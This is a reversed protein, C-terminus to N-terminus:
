RISVSPFYARWDICLVHVFDLADLVPQFFQLTDYRAISFVQLFVGNSIQQVSLNSMVLINIIQTISYKCSTGRFIAPVTLTATSRDCNYMTALHCYFDSVM